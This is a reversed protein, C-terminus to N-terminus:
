VLGLRGRTVALRDPNLESGHFTAGIKKAAAATYGKGCCPDIVTQDVTLHHSLAWLPLAAGRRDGPDGPTFSLEDGKRLALLLVNPLLKSGGRYLVDWRHRVSIGQQELAQQLEGEWRVGMEVWCPGQVQACITSFSVLFAPWNVMVNQKNMTRWYRLNGPGWPPDSYLAHAPLLSALPYTHSTIDDNIAIHMAEKKNNAIM